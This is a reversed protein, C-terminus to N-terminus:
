NALNFADEYKQRLEDLEDYCDECCIGEDSYVRYEYQDGRKEEKCLDCTFKSCGTLILLSVLLMAASCIIRKM